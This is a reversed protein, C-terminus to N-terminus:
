LFLLTEQMSTVFYKIESSHFREIKKVDDLSTVDDHFLVCIYVYRM